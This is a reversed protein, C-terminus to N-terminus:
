KKNRPNIGMSVAAAKITDFEDLAILHLMEPGLLEQFHKLPV